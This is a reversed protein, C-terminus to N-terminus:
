EDYRKRHRRWPKHKEEKSTDWHNITRIRPQHRRDAGDETLKTKQRSQEGNDKSEIMGTRDDEEKCDTAETM